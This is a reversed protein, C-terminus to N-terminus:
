ALSEIFSEIQQRTKREKNVFRGVEKGGKFAVFSPIGFIELEVCLDMLHDRNISYFKYDSYKEIISPMFPKIVMCDPCWNATFLIIVDENEIIERYQEVSTIDKM